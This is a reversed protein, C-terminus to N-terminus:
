NLRNMANDIGIKLIEEVAVEAKEVGIELKKYEEDNVRGIVYDVLDAIKEQKGTGVRVRPFDTTNLERVMSKMGNHTGAGGKKRIKMTGTEIDIDDFITIIDKAEIKYFKAFKEVCEGSANMFTQPKLLIVKKNYVLEEIAELSNAASAIEGEIVGTGFLGNFKEKKVEIEYKASLKNIVDFGMNHRTKSYEPEPNGLGVILYM